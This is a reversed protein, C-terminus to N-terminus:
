ARSNAPPSNPEQLPVAGLASFRKPARAAMEVMVDNVYRCSRADGAADTRCYSRCRSLVQHGIATADMQGASISTGADHSAASSKGDIVSRHHCQSSEAM